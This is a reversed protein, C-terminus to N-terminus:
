RGATRVRCGGGSAPLLLLVSENLRHAVVDGPLELLRALDQLLTTFTAVLSPLSKLTSAATYKRKM